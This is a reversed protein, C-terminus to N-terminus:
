VFANTFQKHIELKHGCKKCIPIDNENDIRNPKVPSIGPENVTPSPESDGDNITNDMTNWGDVTYMEDSLSSDDFSHKIQAGMEDSIRIKLKPLLTIDRGSSGTYCHISRRLGLWEDHGQTSEDSEYEDIDPMAKRRVEYHSLSHKRHKTSTAVEFGKNYFAYRIQPDSQRKESLRNVNFRNEFINQNDYTTSDVPRPALEFTNISRASQINESFLKNESLRLDNCIRRNLGYNASSVNRM